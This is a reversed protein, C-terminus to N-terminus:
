RLPWVLRAFDPDADIREGREAALPEWRQLQEPSPELVVAALLNGSASLTVRQGDQAPLGLSGCLEVALDLAQESDETSLSSTVLWGNTRLNALHNLLREHEHGLVLEDRLTSEYLKARARLGPSSPAIRGHAVDDLLPLVEGTVRRSWFHEIRTMQQLKATAAVASGVLEAQRAERNTTQRAIVLALLAIANAGSASLIASSLLGWDAGQNSVRSYVSGFQIGLWLITTVIGVSLRVTLVVLQVLATAGWAMWLLYISHTTAPKFLTDPAAYVNTLWGLNAAAFLMLAEGWGILSRHLHWASAAGVALVVLSTIIAVPADARPLSPGMLLTLLFGAVLTPWATAVLVSRAAVEPGRIWNRSETTDERPWVLEIRTGQGKGSAITAHGGVEDVRRLVSERLGLRGTPLRSPDFGRGNDSVVVEVGWGRRHVNVNCITAGAHRAVNNLAEHTASALADAVGPPLPDSEGRVQARAKGLAPDRAILEEVRVLGHSFERSRVAERATTCEEVAMEPSVLYSPQALAHLAHLVHDHLLRAAEQRGYAEAQEKHHTRQIALRRDVARDVAGSMTMLADGFLMMQFLPVVIFVTNAQWVRNMTGIPNPNVVVGWANAFLLSGTVCVMFWTYDRRPLGALAMVCLPMAWYGPVWLDVPNLHQAQPAMMLCAVLLIVLGTWPIWPRGRLLMFPLSLAQQVLLVGFGIRSSTADIASNGSAGGTFQRILPILDTAFVLLLIVVGMARLANFVSDRQGPLSRAPAHRQSRPM